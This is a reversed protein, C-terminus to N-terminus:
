VHMDTSCKAYIYHIKLESSALKKERYQLQGPNPLQRVDELELNINFMWVRPDHFHNHCAIQTVTLLKPM